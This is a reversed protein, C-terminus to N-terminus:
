GAIGIAHEIFSTQQTIMKQVKPDKRMTCIGQLFALLGIANKRAQEAKGLETFKKTFWDTIQAPLSLFETFLKGEEKGLEQWLMTVMCGFNQEQQQDINLFANIFAKLQLIPTANETDMKVLLERLLQKRSKIVADVLDTKTKFYYYVNGLPVESRAAIDALTTNDTGKQLFLVDAASILKERKDTKRPM